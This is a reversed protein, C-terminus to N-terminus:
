ARRRLTRSGIVGVALLLPLLVLGTPGPVSAVSGANGGGSTPKSFTITYPGTEEGDADFYALPTTSSSCDDSDNDCIPNNAADYAEINNEGFALYYTGAPLNLEVRSGYCHAASDGDDDGWLPLGAGNFLILNADIVPYTNSACDPVSGEVGWGNITVIGATGLSFRYLDVDGATQLNGQITTTGGPVWQATALTQGADGVENFTQAVAGSSLTAAFLISAFIQGLYKLM